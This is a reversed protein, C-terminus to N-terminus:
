EDLQLFQMAENLDIPIPAEFNLREGTRPHDFAVKWAHLMQRAFDKALKPAYLKDGLVPHGLHHFHVRIQHTRGSHIQCQILSATPGERLVRYDTRAARGRRSGTAM